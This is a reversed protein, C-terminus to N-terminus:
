NRGTRLMPGIGYWILLAAPVLITLWKPGAYLAAVGMVMLIISSSLSKKSEASM